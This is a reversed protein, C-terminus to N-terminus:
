LYLLRSFAFLDRVKFSRHTDKLVGQINGYQTAVVSEPIATADSIDRGRVSLALCVSDTNSSWCCLPQASAHGLFVRRASGQMAPKMSRMSKQKKKSDYCAPPLLPFLFSVNFEQCMTVIHPFCFRNAEWNLTRGSRLLPEQWAFGNSSCKRLSGKAVVLWTRIRLNVLLFLFSLPFPFPLLLSFPLFTVLILNFAYGMHSSPTKTSFQFANLLRKKRKRRKVQQFM